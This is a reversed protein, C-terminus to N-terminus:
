KRTETEVRPFKLSSKIMRWPSFRPELTEQFYLFTVQTQKRKPLGQQLLETQFFGPSGEVGVIELWKIM